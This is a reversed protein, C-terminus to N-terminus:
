VAHGMAEEYVKVHRAAATAPDHFRMATVHCRLGRELARAADTEIAWRIGEALEAAKGRTALFGTERHTIMELAIGVKFAVVPTACMMAEGVTMPGSDEDSPSVFVDAASYVLALHKDDSIYGMSHSPVPLTAGSSGFLVVEIDRRKTVDVVRQLAQKLHEGGKRKNDLTDAGFLVLKKDLPLGLKMRAVIKNTPQFRDVPFANSIHHIPRDGLLSSAKVREMIWRSPCVIHLNRIKAYAEKKRQWIRHALDSRGSLLPCSQCERKYGECGESYHCGGTFANMDALTWVVPRDGLAEGIHDIDVMGVVWHLHVVDADGVTHVFDQAGLVSEPLSFLEAARFGPVERPPRIARERVAGWVADQSATDVGPIEPVVRHVYPHKSKVVLSHIHADVGAHRLAEVRRQTGTGAGGHDMSCVTAIRLAKRAPAPAPAPAAQSDDDFVREDFALWRKAGAQKQDRVFAALMQVLPPHGRHRRVLGSLAEPSLRGHTALDAIEEDGLYAFQERMLRTREATLKDLATSSVGTTRFNMLVRPVEHHTCGAEFLRLTFQFDAIIRYREDYGGICDYLARAVLMTEHRLPMRLRIGADFPMPRIDGQVKGEADVNRARGSVFDAGTAARAEMLARVCDSEYWDDANLLLVYQGQALALGKNMAHYLGRDPESVWYDIQGAHRELLALTGDTSGGDVVVHEVHGWDQAAVSRITQEITAAANFCVTVVTVLERGDVQPARPGETLRRGGEGRRAGTDDPARQWRGVVSRNQTVSPDALAASAPDNPNM